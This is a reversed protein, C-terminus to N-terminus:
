SNRALWDLLIRNFIEPREVNPFHLAGSIEEYRAGPILSALRRNESPVTGPDESGCVVLTPIRVTPLVPVYDFDTIAAVSGIYADLSTALLTARIQRWREPRRQRFSASLWREMSGDAIAELTGAKRLAAIRPAWTGKVDPSSQPLTDCLMLSKFRKPYRLALSQGFMGGISLGVYHVDRLELAALVAEADDALADMTYDGPVPDSGGHGRMDIRLVRYGEALLPGVQESWMGGDAALSHTFCVLPGTDPGLLDYHIRRAQSAILM